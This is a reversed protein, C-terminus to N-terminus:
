GNQSMATTLNCSNGEIVCGVQSILTDDVDKLGRDIGFTAREGAVKAVLCEVM